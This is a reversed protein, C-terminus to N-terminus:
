TMRGGQTRLRPNLLITAMDAALNVVVYAAAVLLTIAQVVPLDRASIADIMMRGLGPYNFVVEVVVVGGMLWAVTLAVVNIAPLLASPLAHRFVIRWYPVGKLRAMQVFDSAMVDIVSSRVMRMIHAVMVFVLVIAAPVFEPFFELAPADAPTLVVAPLWGLWISFILVLITATVFEPITMAFIALGSVVLDIWRDRWLGAVVGLIIALPVGACLAGAALLLSNKVRLTVEGTIPTVGDVSVGLNGQLANGAWDLYRTVAPRDLGLGARCNDLLTGQADRELYATCADGPLAEMGFFILVSVLWVTVAGLVLRRVILEVM